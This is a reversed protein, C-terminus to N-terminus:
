KCVSGRPYATRMIWEGKIKKYVFIYSRINLPKSKICLKNKDVQTCTKGGGMIPRTDFCDAITGSQSECMQTNQRNRFTSYWAKKFASWSNFLSKKDQTDKPTAGKPKSTLGAIHQWVHGGERTNANLDNISYRVSPTRNCQVAAAQHNTALVVLLITLLVAAFAKESMKDDPVLKASITTTANIILLLLLQKQLKQASSRHATHMCNAQLTM